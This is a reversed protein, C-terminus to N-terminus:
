AFIENVIVYMNKITASFITVGGNYKVLFERYDEPLRGGIKTEFEQLRGLNVNLNHLRTKM